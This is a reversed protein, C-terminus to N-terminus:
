KGKVYAFIIALILLGSIIFTGFGSSYVVYISINRFASVILFIFLISCLILVIGKNKNRYM